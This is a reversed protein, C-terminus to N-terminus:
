STGVRVRCRHGLQVRRLGGGKDRMLADLHVMKIVNLTIEFDFAIRSKYLLLM